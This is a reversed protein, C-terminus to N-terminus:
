GSARVHSPRCPASLPAGVSGAPMPHSPNGYMLSLQYGQQADPLLSKVKVHKLIVVHKYRPSYKIWSMFVIAIALELFNLLDIGLGM